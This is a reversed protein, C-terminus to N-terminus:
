YNPKMDLSLAFLCLRFVPHRLIAPSIAGIIADQDLVFLVVDSKPREALLRVLKFVPTDGGILTRERLDTALSRRRFPRGFRVRSRFWAVAGAYKPVGELLNRSHHYL